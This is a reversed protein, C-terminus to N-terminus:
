LALTNGDQDLLRVGVDKTFGVVVGDDCHSVEVDGTLFAASEVVIACGRRLPLETGWPEIFLTCEDRDTQTFTVRPASRRFM